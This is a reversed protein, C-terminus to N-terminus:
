YGSRGKCITQDIIFIKEVSAYNLPYIFITSGTVM